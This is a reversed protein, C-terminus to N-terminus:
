FSALKPSNVGFPNFLLASALSIGIVCGVLAITLRVGIIRFLMAISTTCVATSTMSFAIAMGIPFGHSLLSIAIEFANELCLWGDRVQDLPGSNGPHVLSSFM